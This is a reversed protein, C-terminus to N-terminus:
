GPRPRAAARALCARVEAILQEPPMPRRLYREAGLELARRASIDDWHTSTIFIFPVHQLAPVAKVARLFEFGDANPMGVDSIIMTPPNFRAMALAEEPASATIVHWGMPALCSRKLSLNVPEDDVVLIIPAGDDRPRLFAEMWPVFKQPDIPKASYGDFGEAILRERDGAMANSTVALLPLRAIAADARLRRAFEIGDMGPLEIDCVVLDPASTHALEMGREGDAAALVEHDFACLLYRMLELNIDNDEIVLIRAM